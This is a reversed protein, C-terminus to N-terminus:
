IVEMKWKGSVPNTHIYELKQLLFRENYCPKIDSSIEFVRHKKQRKKEEPTVRSELISILDVMQRWDKLLKM